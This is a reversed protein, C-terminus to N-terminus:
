LHLSIAGISLNIVCICATVYINHYATNSRAVAM